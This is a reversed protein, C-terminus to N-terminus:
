FKIVKKKKNQKKNQKLERRFQRLKNLLYYLNFM